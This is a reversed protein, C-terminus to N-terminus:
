RIGLWFGLFDKKQKKKLIGMLPLLYGRFVLLDSAAAPALKGVKEDRQLCLIRWRRPWLM